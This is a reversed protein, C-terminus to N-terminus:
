LLAMLFAVFSRLPVFPTVHLLFVNYCLMAYINALSGGVLMKESPLFDETYGWRPEIFKSYAYKVLTSCVFVLMMIEVIGFVPQFARLLEQNLFEVRLLHMYIPFAITLFVAGVLTFPSTEDDFRASIYNTLWMCILYLYKSM